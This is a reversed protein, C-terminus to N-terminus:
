SCPLEDAPAIIAITRTIAMREMEAIRARLFYLAM